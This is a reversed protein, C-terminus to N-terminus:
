LFFCHFIAVNEYSQHQKLWFKFVKPYFHAYSFIAPHMIKGKPRHTCGTHAYLLDKIDFVSVGFTYTGSAKLNRPASTYHMWSLKLFGLM